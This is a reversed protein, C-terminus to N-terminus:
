YFVTQRLFGRFDHRELSAPPQASGAEVLRLSCGEPGGFSQSAEYTHGTEPVFSVANACSRDLYTDHTWAFLCAPEGAVIRVTEDDDTTIWSFTGFARVPEYSPCADTTHATFSRSFGFPL